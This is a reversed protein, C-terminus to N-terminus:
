QRVATLRGDFTIDFANLATKWGMAWRAQGKGTPDLSMIAMCVCKLAAQEHPFHGRAKVARRIRANVSEIANTTCVIRRIETDFRLFPTFEEWANEWLKVIAPTWPSHRHAAREPPPSSMMVPETVWLGAGDTRDAMADVAGAQDQGGQDDEGDAAFEGDGVGGLM